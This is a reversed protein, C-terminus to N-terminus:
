RKLEEMGRRTADMEQSQTVVVSAGAPIIAYHDDAAANNIDHENNENRDDKGKVASHWHPPM